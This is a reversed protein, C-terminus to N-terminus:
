KIERVRLVGDPCQYLDLVLMTLWFIMGEYENPSRLLQIYERPKSLMELLHLRLYKKVETNTLRDSKQLTKYFELDNWKNHEISTEFLVSESSDVIDIAGDVNKIVADPYKNIDFIMKALDFVLKSYFDSATGNCTMCVNIICSEFYSRRICSEFYSRRNILDLLSKELYPLIDKVTSGDSEYLPKYLLTKRYIPKLISSFQPVEIIKESMSVLSINLSM